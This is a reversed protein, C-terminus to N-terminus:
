NAGFKAVTEQLRAAMEALEQASTAIQEMSVMQEEIAAATEEAGAANEEAMTALENTSGVIMESSGRQQSTAQSIGQALEATREVAQIVRDMSDLVRDTERQIGESLEAIEGVSRSSSEALRRVEDAVVAFGKGHESARAAEIAANLALLNTQDAFKDVIEVIKSIEQARESLKRLAQASDSVMESAQASAADVTEASTAIEGTLSAMREISKSVVEMQSAQAEAGKAMEGVTSSVQEASAHTEEMLASLEEASISLQHSLDATQGILGCLAETMKNFTQALLGIEDGTTVPVRQTLDGTAVQRAVGSMAVLPATIRKVDWYALILMAALISGGALLAGNQGRQIDAVVENRLTSIEVVGILEGSYDWLPGDLVGYHNGAHSIRNIVVEGTERVQDYVQPPMPLREDRTSAYIWLDSDVTVKEASEEGVATVHGSGEILYICVDLDYHEAYHRLFWEGFDLGLEVTGIHKGEYSVPAIGRIGLGGKGKELGMVIAQQANALVVARRHDSLDDGYQDLLHLRLFSTALPLHFHFQSIDLEENLDEYIPLTLQTLGERDQAAFAQQIDPTNAFNIALALATEGHEEIVTAFNAYQDGFRRDEEQEAIRNQKVVSMTVLAVVVFVLGVLILLLIRHAVKMRRGTLLGRQKRVESPDQQNM